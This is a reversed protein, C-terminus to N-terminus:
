NGMSKKSGWKVGISQHLDLAESRFSRRFRVAATPDEQCWATSPKFEVVETPDGTTLDGSPFFREFNANFVLFTIYFGLSTKCKAM